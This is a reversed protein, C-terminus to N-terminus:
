HAPRYVADAPDETVTVRVTRTYGKYTVTVTVTGAKCATILGMDDIRIVGADGEISYTMTKQGDRINLEEERGDGYTIRARIQPGYVAAEDKYVTIEEPITLNFSVIDTAKGIDASSEVVRVWFHHLLGKYTVTVRTEGAGVPMIQGRDVRIVNEDYESFAVDKDRMSIDMGRNFSDYSKLVIKLVSRGAVIEYFDKETSLLIPMTDRQAPVPTKALEGMVCPKAREAEMDNGDSLGLTIPQVRANWKGWEVTGYGYVVHLRDADTDLRIHGNRRSSLGANHLGAYTNERVADVLEFTLGDESELVALWSQDGMRNGTSVAVFKGLDEVYKVDLSDILFDETRKQYAVGHQQITLPWNESTADATAVMTYEVSGLSCTYYIYLTGNLEVMSGEGLGWLKHTGEYYVIPEPNPGGWGTGNWKEFPGDPNESRAIFLNNCRGDQNLTSTYALYYYGNFYVVGPDCCSLDDMEGPTPAMVIKEASWTKGNDDSHRYSIWDWQTPIGACAFYADVSGDDNYLYTAGYRYGGNGNDPICYIDYGEDAVAMDVVKSTDPTVLEIRNAEFYDTTEEATQTETENETETAPETETVPETETLVTTTQDESGGEAPPTDGGTCGVLLACTLSVLTVASTWNMRKM